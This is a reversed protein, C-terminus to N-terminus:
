ECVATLRKRDWPRTRSEISMLDLVTITITDGDFAKVIVRWRCFSIWRENLCALECPMWLRSLQIAHTFLDNPSSRSGHRALGPICPRLSPRPLAQGERHLRRSHAPGTPRWFRTDVPIEVWLVMAEINLALTKLLDDKENRPCKSPFDKIHLAHMCDHAAVSRYCWFWLWKHRLHCHCTAARSYTPEYLYNGAVIFICGAFHGLLVSNLSQTSSFIREASSGFRFTPIDSKAPKLSFIHINRGSPGFTRWTEGWHFWDTEESIKTPLSRDCSRARYTEISKIWSICIDRRQFNRVVWMQISIFAPVM